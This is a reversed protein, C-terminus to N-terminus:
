KDFTIERRASPRLRDAYLEKEIDDWEESNEGFAGALDMIKHSQVQKEEESILRKILDPFTENKKKKSKLQDYIEVPLSITKQGMSNDYFTFIYFM